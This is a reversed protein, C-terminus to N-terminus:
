CGAMEHFAPGGGRKDLRLQFRLQLAHWPAGSSIRSKVGFHSREGRFMGPYFINKKSVCVCINQSFQVNIDYAYM